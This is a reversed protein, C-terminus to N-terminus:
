KKKSKNDEILDLGLTKGKETAPVGKALWVPAPAGKLYHDFFQQMRISWDRKNDDKTLGHDEGNYNFLWAPKGLRRMAVFLEIGQYWPVAGDKDNHLILLPTQINNAWFVPSNEIYNQQANWLTGGIRSQSKEYQFMRSMGSSWRIGGYASTMNSVPAGSEAAAFINTKTVLFATQYGGWSHGQTGIRKKDVFGRDILMSVGPLIANVASLGPHGIKYPIDPIFVVYGRSVYFSTNISARASAPAVYRHLNQSLREYFYVLMPYKKKPDFNEPKLLIGQLKEGDLSTWDVLEAKGWLYNKQQPNADSIRKFDKFKLDTLWLDPSKEFTQRTVILTDSKEAKRSVSLAEDAMIVQQPKKKSRVKDTFYGTAKSRLDFAALLMPKEPDIAREEPDLRTYRFRLNKERGVKDTICNPPFFGDPNVAWLDHKDYILMARDGSVWGASGYPGPIMPHDDLENHVPYPMLETLNVTKKKKMSYAFWAKKHGDWWTVYKAEPSLSANGQFKKLLQKRKGTKVDLLDIDNYGPYDWSILMRYPLNSAGLAVDADGRNGVSVSPLNETALQVIKGDKLHVVALYNRNRERSAQRLQMPQLYPDKWHWIDVKVKSPKKKTKSKKGKNKISAQPDPVTRFFIRTGNESFNLVGPRPLAPGRRFRRRGSSFTDAVKWNEPIGKMGTAAVVDAQKKNANWHFVKWNKSNNKEGHNSLFAVQKGAKDVALSKYGAEGKLITQPKDTGVNVFYVGDDKADPTVALYYLKKGNEAFRYSTVHNLRYEAGTKLNRIVLESGPTRRSTRSKSKKSTTQKSTAKAKKPKVAPKKATTKKAPPKKEIKTKPKTTTPKEAKVPTVPMSSKKEKLYAVWGGAKAPLQMSRIREIKTVKKSKLNYIELRSKPQDETKRKAAKAKKVEDPDPSVLYIAFQGDKSFQASRGRPVTHTTKGDANKLKLTTKGKGSRVSYMVWNGDPSINSTTIRNWLDYSEHGLPKKDAAHVFTAFVCLLFCVCHFCLRNQKVFKM